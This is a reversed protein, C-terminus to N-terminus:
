LHLIKKVFDLMQDYAQDIEPWPPNLRKYLQFVHIMDDFERFQIEVGAERAKSVFNLNDYYMLESRSFQILIPPFENLDAWFPSILPNEIPPLFISM